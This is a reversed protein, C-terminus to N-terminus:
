KKLNKQKKLLCVHLKLTTTVSLVMLVFYVCILSEFFLSSSRCSVLKLTWMSLSFFSVSACFFLSQFPFCLRTKTMPLFMFVFSFFNLSEFFLSSSGCNVFKLTWMSLSIFSVSACFLLSQFPFSFRTAETTPSHPHSVLDRSVPVSDSSNNLLSRHFGFESVSVSVSVICVRFRPGRQHLIWLVRDKIQFLNDYGHGCYFDYSM